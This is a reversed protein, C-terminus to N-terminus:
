QHAFSGVAKTGDPRVIEVWWAAGEPLPSPAVAHIDYDDHGAAYEGRGVMSLTRDETGIWARVSTAGKDNFPLKIVLHSEKGPEVKGHGQAAEVQIGGIAFTGLPVEDHAHDGEEETHDAHVSGDAHTHGGEDKTSDGCASLFALTFAVCFPTLVRTSM